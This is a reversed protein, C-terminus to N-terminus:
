ISKPLKSLNGEDYVKKLKEGNQSRLKYYGNPLVEDVKYPGLSGRGAIYYVDENLKFQNSFAPTQETM